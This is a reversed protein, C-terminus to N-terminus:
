YAVKYTPKDVNNDDAAQKAAQPQKEAATEQLPRLNNIHTAYQRPAGTYDKEDDMSVVAANASMDIAVVTAKKWTSIPKAEVRDGVKYTPQDQASAPFAVGIIITIAAVIALSMLKISHLNTQKTM